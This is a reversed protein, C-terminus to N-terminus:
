NTKRKGISALDEISKRLEELETFGDIVKIVATMADESTLSKAAVLKREFEEVLKVQKVQAKGEDTLADVPIKFAKALKKLVKYTPTVEGTEYRTVMAQTIDAEEALTSATWDRERRLKLIKAGIM